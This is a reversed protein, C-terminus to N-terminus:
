RFVLLLPLSFLSHSLPLPPACMIKCKPHTGRAASTHNDQTGSLLACTSITQHSAPYHAGADPIRLRLTAACFRNYKPNPLLTEAIPRPVRASQARDTAGHMDRGEFWSLKNIVLDAQGRM